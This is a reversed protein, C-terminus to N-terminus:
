WVRHVIGQYRVFKKIETTGPKNKYSQGSQRFLNTKWFKERTSGSKVQWKEHRDERNQLRGTFFPARLTSSRQTCDMQWKSAAKRESLRDTCVAALADESLKSLTIATHVSEM